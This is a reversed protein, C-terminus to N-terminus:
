WTESEKEIQDQTLFDGSEIQGEAIKLRTNFADLTLPKGEVTYAVTMENDLIANIKNIISKKKVGLIKQVVDLKAAQLEM